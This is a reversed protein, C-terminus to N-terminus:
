RRRSRKWRDWDVAEAETGAVEIADPALRDTFLVVNRCAWRASPVILGDLGLFYAADAIQQTRSYDREAYRSTDVGLAALAALDGLVLMREVRLRLRHVRFRVKSPFVPQMTLLAHVEAIAGDRELSGHLVDFAQNCWRSSSPAGLLPDRGERCVRWAEGHLRDRPLRDIADLLALERARPLNGPTL